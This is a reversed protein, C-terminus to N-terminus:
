GCGAGDVAYAAPYREAQMLWGVQEDDYRNIYSWVVDGQATVEFARGRDTETILINDNALLQHKGRYPTYFPAEPSGRYLTRTEQTAPDIAVIRSAPGGAGTSRGMNDFVTITGDPQFDPDHQGQLPGTFVWKLRHSAGDVVWLQHLNRSSVLLDGAAFMPFAAAMEASLPEVDNTHVVDMRNRDVSLQALALRDSADLVEILPILESREGTAPDIRVLTDMRFPESSFDPHEVPDLLSPAWLRGRDDAHISHHTNDSNRWVIRGCRDVRVMGREDLNAVIDGNPYLVTGHILAHFKHKMREPAITFFDIPWEHLLRGRADVLRFTLRNGFLGTLLTVGPQMRAPEAIVAGEGDYVAPELHYSPEDAFASRWNVVAESMQSLYSRAAPAPQWDLIAVFLGGAFALVIAAVIGLRVLWQM